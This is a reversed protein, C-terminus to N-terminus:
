PKGDGPGSLMLHMEEAKGVTRAARHCQKNELFVPDFLKIRM